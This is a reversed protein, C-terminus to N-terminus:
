RRRKRRIDELVAARAEEITQNGDIKDAAARAGGGPRDQPKPRETTTAKGGLELKLKLAEKEVIDAAQDANPMKERTYGRRSFEAKVREVLANRNSEGVMKVASNMVASAAKKNAAAQARDTLAQERQLVAENFAEQAKSWAALDRRYAREEEESAYEDPPTPAKPMKPLPPLEADSRAALLEELAGADSEEAGRDGKLKALEKRLNAIEQDKQQRLKDWAKPKAAATDPEDGEAEDDGEEPEDDDDDAPEEADDDTATAARQDIEAAQQNLLDDLGIADTEAGANEKDFETADDAYGTDQTTNEDAM